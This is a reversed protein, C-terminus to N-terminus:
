LIALSPNYCSRTGKTPQIIRTNFWLSLLRSKLCTKFCTPRTHSMRLCLCSPFLVMRCQIRCVWRGWRPLRRRDLCLSVDPAWVMPSRLLLSLVVMLCIRWSIRPNLRFSRFPIAHIPRRLRSRLRRDLLLHRLCTLRTKASNCVTSILLRTCSLLLTEESAPTTMVCRILFALLRNRSRPLMATQM